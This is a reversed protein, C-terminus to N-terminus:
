DGLLREAASVPDLRREAVAEVLEDWDPHAAAARVGIEAAARRLQNRAETISTPECGASLLMLSMVCSWAAWRAGLGSHSM